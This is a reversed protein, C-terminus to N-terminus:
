LDSNWPMASKASVFIGGEKYSTPMDESVRVAKWGIKQAFVSIGGGDFREFVAKANEPTGIEVIADLHAWVNDPIANLLVAEHGEADIKLFDVTEAIERIDIVRVDFTELEGYPKRKAGALHSSTTNGLVRVFPMSGCKDSVAAQLVEVSESVNLALNARLIKVHDPDPEYAMVNWGCKAMLISHIGLNAGIDAARRYRYRNAWYFSFIILEDLGFLDLTSIAGMRSFPFTVSGFCGLSVPEGSENRLDSSVVAARARQDLEHYTSSTRAHQMALVPLAEIIQGLSLILPFPAM